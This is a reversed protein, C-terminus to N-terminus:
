VPKLYLLSTYNFNRTITSEPILCNYSLGTIKYYLYIYIFILSYEVLTYRLFVITKELALVSTRAPVMDLARSMLTPSTTAPNTTPPPTVKPTTLTVSFEEEPLSSVVEVVTAAFVALIVAPGVVVVVVMAEVVSSEM